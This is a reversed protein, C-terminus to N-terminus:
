FNDLQSINKKWFFFGVLKWHHHFWMKGVLFPLHLFVGSIALHLFRNQSSHGGQNRADCQSFFVIQHNFWVTQFIHSGHFQIMEGPIRPSFELFYKLQWWRSLKIVMM